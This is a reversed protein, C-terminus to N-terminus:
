KNNLKQKILKSSVFVGGLILLGLNPSIEFPVPTASQLSYNLTVGNDQYFLNTGTIDRLFSFVSSLQLTEEALITQFSTGSNIINGSSDLDWNNVFAIGPNTVLNTNLEINGDGFLRSTLDLSGNTVNTIELRTAPIDDANPVALLDDFEVEGSVVDSTNGTNGDVNTFTWDFIIANAAQLNSFTAGIAISCGILLKYLKM